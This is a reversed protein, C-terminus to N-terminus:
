NALATRLQAISSSYRTALDNQFAGGEPSVPLIQGTSTIAYAGDSGMANNALRTNSDVQVILLYRQGMTFNPFSPDEATVQVGNLTVTGGWKFVLIENSQPQAMDTPPNTIGFPPPKSSLTEIVRFRYWSKVIDDTLTGYSRLEIPEVIVFSFGSIVNDWTNPLFYEHIGVPFTISTQNQAQAEAIYAAITAPQAQQQSILYARVSQLTLVSLIGVLIVLAVKTATRIRM